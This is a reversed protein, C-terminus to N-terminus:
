TSIPLRDLLELEEARALGSRRPRALGRRREDVLARLLTTPLDAPSGGARRFASTDRRPLGADESPLWLPLSRPGSWYRVDNQLLWTDPAVVTQGRFGAIQAALDLVEAFPHVEGTANFTGTLGRRGADVLWVALDQVDIVQVAREAADPVLVAGDGALAFRSVWYGFRDSGDGPGAILGPRVLLLRDGVAAATATEAAVKAQGYDRLDRPELLAATEDDWPRSNDAYVSISSILTWHRASDALADLAGTVLDSAYSLELVEDWRQERVAAYADPATRDAAVLRAGPPPAASGRALCTVRDGAALLHRVIEKGLWATGGLVLVDRATM